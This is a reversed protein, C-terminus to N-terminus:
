DSLDAAVHLTSRDRASSIKGLLRVLISLLHNTTRNISEEFNVSM